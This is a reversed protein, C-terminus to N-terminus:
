KTTAAPNLVASLTAVPNQFLTLKEDSYLIPWKLTNLLVQHLNFPKHLLVYDFNEAQFVEYSGPKTHVLSLYRIFPSTGTPEEWLSMRGDIYVKLTPYRYILWGGLRYSNLIKGRLQHTELYTILPESCLVSASCYTDWSQNTLAPIQKKFQLFTFLTLIILGYLNFKKVSINKLLPFKSSWTSQLHQLWHSSMLAFTPLSILTYYTIIRRSKFALLANLAIIIFVSLDFEPLTSKSKLYRFRYLWGLCLTLSFLVLLNLRPTGWEWPMWEMIYPFAQSNFHGLATSLLNAGFPNALTVLSSFGLSILNLYQFNKNFFSYILSYSPSVEKKTSYKTITSLKTSKTAPTTSKPILTHLAFITLGFIYQGHLNSWIFFLFPIFLLYVLLTTNRVKTSTLNSSLRHPPYNLLATWLLSTALVSFIQSRLGTNLLHQGFFFYLSLPILSKTAYKGLLMTLAIALILGATLSLGLFGFNNFLYFAILDFGWSHNPWEYNPMQTSFQNTKLLQHNQSFYQGYQLHWGLDADTTPHTFFLFSSIFILLLSLRSLIKNSTM